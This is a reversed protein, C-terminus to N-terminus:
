ALPRKRLWPGTPERGVCRESEEGISQGRQGWCGSEREAPAWALFEPTRKREKEMVIRTSEVGKFDEGELRKEGDKSDM